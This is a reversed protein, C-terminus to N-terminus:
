IEKVRLSLNVLKITGPDQCFFFGMQETKMPPPQGSEM